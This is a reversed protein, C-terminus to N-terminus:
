QMNERLQEATLRIEELQEDSQRYCKLCLEGNEWCGCKVEEYITDDPDIMDQVDFWREAPQESLPDSFDLLIASYPCAWFCGYVALLNSQPDYDADTWIFTETMQEGEAPYSESPIYHFEKGSELEMVSYGYLDVRFVLYHRGNAHCFLSAFDGDTSLNRWVFRVKGDRDLLTNESVRLNWDGIKGHYGQFRVSFGEALDRTRDLYPYRHEPTFLTQCKAKWDQYQKSNVANM